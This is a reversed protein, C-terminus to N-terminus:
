ICTNRTRFNKSITALPIFKFRIVLLKHALPTKPFFNDIFQQKSLEPYGESAVDADPMNNLSELYPKETLRLHGIPKGGFRDYAVLLRGTAVDRCRRCEDGLNKRPVEFFNLWGQTSSSPKKGCLAEGYMGNGDPLLHIESNIQGKGTRGSLVVSECDTVAGMKAQLEWVNMIQNVYRFSWDRRTVSKMHLRDLTLGFSINM